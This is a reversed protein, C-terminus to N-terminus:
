GARQRIRFYRAAMAAAAADAIKEELTQLGAFDASNDQLRDGRSYPRIPPVREPSSTPSSASYKVPKRALAQIYLGNPVGGNWQTHDQRSANWLFPYSVPADAVQFQRSRRSRARRGPQLDHRVRRAAGSGLAVRAPETWSSASSDSGSRSDIKLQAAKGGYLRRRAGGQCLRRFPRHEALHRARSAATLDTLFQQFDANARRAMSVCRM